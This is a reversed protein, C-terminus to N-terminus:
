QVAFLNTAFAMIADKEDAPVQNQGEGTFTLTVIMGDAVGAPDSKDVAFSAYNDVWQYLMKLQEDNLRFVTPEASKCSSAYVWGGATITLTDCFGAIGGERTWTIVPVVAPEGDEVSQRLARAWEAIARQEEATPERGGSGEFTLVGARTGAEFASFVEALEALERGREQSLPVQRLTGGCPGYGVTRFGIEARTCIGNETQEWTIAPAQTNPVPSGAEMIKGGADDTHYEFQKGDAEVVVRYGPTLVQLCMMGQTQVGLCSNPWTVEEVLIVRVDAPRLSNKVALTDIVNKVAQPMEGELPISAPTEDGKPRDPGPNGAAEGAAERISSGDLNTRFVAQTGNAEVVVRYGEVIMAGCSEAPGGLGLCTDSWQMAEIERIIVESPDVGLREALAQQVAQAAPPAPNETEFPTPPVPTTTPVAPSAPTCAALLLGALIILHMLKPIKM